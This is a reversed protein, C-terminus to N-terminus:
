LSSGSFTKRWEVFGNCRSLDFSTKLHKQAILCARKDFASLTELYEVVEPYKSMTNEDVYIDNICFMHEYREEETSPNENKTEAINFSKKFFSQSSSSAM